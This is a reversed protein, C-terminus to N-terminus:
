DKIKVHILYFLFFCVKRFFPTELSPNTSWYSKKSPKSVLGMAMLIGIFWRMEDTNTGKNVDWMKLYYCDPKLRKAQRAFENTENVMKQIITQGVFLNWYGLPTIHSPQLSILPGTFSTFKDKHQQSDLDLEIHGHTNDPVKWEDSDSELSQNDTRESVM